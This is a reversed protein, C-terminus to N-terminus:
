KWFHLVVQAVVVVVGVISAYAATKGAQEGRVIELNKVREALSSHDRDYMERRLYDQREQNIQNRFNNMEELRYDLVENAKQIRAEAAEHLQNDAQAQTTLAADFRRFEAQMARREAEFARDIFQVLPLPVFPAPRSNNNETM